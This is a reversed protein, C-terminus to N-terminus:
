NNAPCREPLRHLADVWDAFGLRRAERNVYEIVTEMNGPANVPWPDSCILLTCLAELEIKNM